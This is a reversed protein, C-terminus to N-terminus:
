TSPWYTSLGVAVCSFDDLISRTTAPVSFATSITSDSAFCSDSSIMSPPTTNPWSCICAAMLAM